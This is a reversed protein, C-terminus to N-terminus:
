RLQPRDAPAEVWVGNLMVRRVDRMAGLDELPNGAVLIIDARKGSEISGLRDEARFFRANVLTAAQLIEMPELGSEHLLEMERQYAFGRAAHPVESHSGVVIRVGARHARNVFALMNSFGRAEVDNSGPDGPRREFVALTPTFFTGRAVLLDLVARARPSDVDIGSWLAYRGTNRAANDAIVAQRFAEAERLPALAVGFSTVHEIGDLGARVADGADVLELHATVVLGHDHAASTVADIMELPLRYYIKIASAGEAALRAVTIRAEAPDRVLLSDAPYAPPPWDLHPGTLFLRPVPVNLARVPAYAQIWAGPDRLTTVGRQLQLPPLQVDGDLHFHADLLGPMLTMGTADVIEAGEPIQAAARTGAFVIREGRVVVVADRVPPGGRGDVLLAGTIATTRGPPPEAVADIESAPPLLDTMPRTRAAVLAGAIAVGGLVVGLLMRSNPNM